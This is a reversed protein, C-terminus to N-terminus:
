SNHQKFGIVGIDSLKLSLPSDLLPVCAWKNAIIPKDFLSRSSMGKRIGDDSLLTKSLLLCSTTFCLIAGVSLLVQIGIVAFQM